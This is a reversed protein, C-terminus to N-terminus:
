VWIILAPNWSKLLLSQEYGQCIIQVNRNNFNRNWLHSESRVQIKRPITSTEINEVPQLHLSVKCQASKGLQRAEKKLIQPQFM